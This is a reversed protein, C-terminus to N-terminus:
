SPACALCCLSCALEGGRRRSVVWHPSVMSLSLFYLLLFYFFKWAVAEFGAMRCHHPHSLGHGIPRTKIAAQCCILLPPPARACWYVIVVMIVSQGLLYPIEM